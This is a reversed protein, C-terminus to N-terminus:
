RSTANFVSAVQITFHDGSPSVSEEISQNQRLTDLSPNASGNDVWVRRSDGFDPHELIDSFNASNGNIDGRAGVFQTFDLGDIRDANLKGVKTSSNVALPAGSDVKLSLAPGAGSKTLTSVASALNSRGLKFLVGSAV